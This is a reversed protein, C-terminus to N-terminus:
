MDETMLEVNLLQRYHGFARRMEEEDRHVGMDAALRRFEDLYYDKVALTIDKRVAMGAREDRRVGDDFAVLVAQIDPDDSCERPNTIM